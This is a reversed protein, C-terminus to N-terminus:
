TSSSHTSSGYLCQGILGLARNVGPKESQERPPPRRWLDFSIWRAMGYGESETRMSCSERSFSRTNPAYSSSSSTWWTMMNSM